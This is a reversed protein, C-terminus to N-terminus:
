NEGSKPPDLELLNLQPSPGSIMCELRQMRQDLDKIAGAVVALLQNQDVTLGEPDESVMTPLPTTQLQQAIFGVKPDHKGRFNYRFVDTKRVVEMCEEPTFPSINEKKREDSVMYMELCRLKGRVDLECLPRQTIDDMFDSGVGLKNGRLVYDYYQVDQQDATSLTTDTLKKLPQIDFFFGFNEIDYISLVM